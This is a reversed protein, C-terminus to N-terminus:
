KGGDAPTKVVVDPIPDDEKGELVHKPVGVSRYMADRLNQMDAESLDVTGVLEVPKIVRICTCRHEPKVCAFCYSPSIASM